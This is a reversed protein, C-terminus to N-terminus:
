ESVMSQPQESITLGFLQQICIIIGLFAINYTVLTLLTDPYGVLLGPKSQLVPDTQNWVRGFVQGVAEECTFGMGTGMLGRTKHLKALGTPEFVQNENKPTEIYKRV